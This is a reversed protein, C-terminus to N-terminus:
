SKSRRILLFFSGLGLLATSSPEPVVDLTVLQHTVYNTASSDAFVQFRTNAAVGGTVDFFYMDITGNNNASITTEASGGGAGVEQVGITIPAFSGADLGDTAVGIRLTESALVATTVDFTLMVVDTGGTGNNSTTKVQRDPAGITSDDITDYGPFPGVQSQASVFSFSGFTADGFAVGGFTGYINDGDIDQSKLTSATRWQTVENSADNIVNGAATITAAHVM